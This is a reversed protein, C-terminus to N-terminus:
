AAVESETPRRAGEILKSDPEIFFTEGQEFRIGAERLQAETLEARHKLLEEKNVSITTDVFPEGWSLADLREAIRDWTDRSLLKEVKHPNLRFGVVVNGFDRSKAKTEDPLLEARHSECYLQIGSELGLIEREEDTNAVAHEAKLDALAKEQKAKRRLLTLSIEIYRNLAAELGQQTAIVTHPTPTKKKKSM